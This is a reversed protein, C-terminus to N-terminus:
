SFIHGKWKFDEGLTRSGIITWLQFSVNNITVTKSLSSYRHSAKNIIIVKIDFDGDIDNLIDNLNDDNNQSEYYYVQNLDALYDKLDSHDPSTLTEVLRQVTSIYKYKFPDKKAQQYQEAWNFCQKTLYVLMWGHWKKTYLSVETTLKWLTEIRCLLAALTWINRRDVVNCCFNPVKPFIVEYTTM